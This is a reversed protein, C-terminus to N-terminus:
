EVIEPNIAVLATESDDDHFVFYRKTIGVQPAALGGGPADYMTKVMVEVSSALAGDIDTVDDSRERLVPDGIQRISFTTMGGLNGALGDLSPM